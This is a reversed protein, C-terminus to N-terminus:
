NGLLSNVLATIDSLDREGDNNYDAADEVDTLDYTVGETPRGLLYNALAAVDNVDVVGDDTVDGRTLTPTDYWYNYSNRKMKWGRRLAKKSQYNTCINNDTGTYWVYVEGYGSTGYATRDPLSAVFADM